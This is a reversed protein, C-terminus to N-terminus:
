GGLPDKRKKAWIVTEFGWFAWTGRIVKNIKRSHPESVGGVIFYVLPRYRKRAFVIEMGNSRLSRIMDDYQPLYAHTPDDYFNLTGKRSPFDVSAESPFALYLLGDEQLRSCMAKLTKEPYNCHEINHNSIVADFDKPLEAIGDAFREPEFILYEDAEALEEKTNNYDGVDIGVYYSDPCFAVKGRKPRIVSWVLSKFKIYASTVIGAM